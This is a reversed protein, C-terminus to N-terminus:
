SATETVSPRHVIKTCTAIFPSGPLGIGARRFLDPRLVFQGPHFTSRWWLEMVNCYKDHSGCGVETCKRCPTFTFCHFHFGDNRRDEVLIMQHIRGVRWSGCICRRSHRKAVVVLIWVLTSTVSFVIYTPTQSIKLLTQWMRVEGQKKLSGIAATGRALSGLGQAQLRSELSHRSRAATPVVAALLSQINRANCQSYNHCRPKKKRHSHAVKKEHTLSTQTKSGPKSGLMSCVSWKPGLFLSGSKTTMM